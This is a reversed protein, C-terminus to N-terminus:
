LKLVCRKGDELMCRPARQVGLRALSVERLTRRLGYFLPKHSGPTSTKVDRSWPGRSEVEATRFTASRVAGFGSPAGQSLRSNEARLCSVASSTLM